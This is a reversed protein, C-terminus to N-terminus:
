VVEDIRSVRIEWRSAKMRVAGAHPAKVLYSRALGLRDNGAVRFLRDREALLVGPLNARRHPFLRALSGDHWSLGLLLRLGLLLTVVVASATGFTLGLHLLTEDTM